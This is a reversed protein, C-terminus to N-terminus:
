PRSDQERDDPTQWSKQRARARPSQDTPQAGLDRRAAARRAGYWFAAILFAVIVVGVVILFVPRGAPSATFLATGAGKRRSM